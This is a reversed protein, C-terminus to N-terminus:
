NKIELRIGTLIQLIANLHLQISKVTANIDAHLSYQTNNPVIVRDSQIPIRTQSWNCPNSWYQNKNGLWFNSERCINSPMNDLLAQYKRATATYPPLVDIDPLVGWSGYVSEQRTALSFNCSMECGWSRISDLVRNYLDYMLPSNQADWMAQQYPYPIGFSNGVFHQGGEYTIVKKGFLKTNDYDQKVSEKFILWANLANNMVDQVTSASNLVPNGSSGHDLGFYHTPSAYDWKDQPLQAVIQENLFNFSAQLG